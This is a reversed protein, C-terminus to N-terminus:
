PSGELSILGEILKKKTYQYKDQEHCRYLVVATMIYLLAGVFPVVDLRQSLYIYFVTFIMEAVSLMVLMLLFYNRM